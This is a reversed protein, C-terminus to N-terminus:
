KVIRVNDVNHLIPHYSSQYIVHKFPNWLFHDHGSWPVIGVNAQVSQVFGRFDLELYGIDWSLYSRFVELICTWFTVELGFQERLGIRNVDRHILTRRSFSITVWRTFVIEAKTSGSFENSQVCSRAVSGYGSVNSDSTVTMKSTVVHLRTSAYLM